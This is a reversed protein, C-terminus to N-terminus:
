GYPSELDSYGFQKLLSHQLIAIKEWCPKAQNVFYSWWFSKCLKQQKTGKRLCLALFFLSHTTSQVWYQHICCPLSIPPVTLSIVTRQRSERDQLPQPKIGSARPHQILPMMSHLRQTASSSQLYCSWFPFEACWGCCWNWWHWGHGSLKCCSQLTGVEKQLDNCSQAHFVQTNERSKWTSISYAPTPM